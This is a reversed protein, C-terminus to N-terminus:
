WRMQGADPVRSEWALELSTALIRDAVFRAQEPELGAVEICLPQFFRPMSEFVSLRETMQRLNDKFVQRAMERQSLVEIETSDQESLGAKNRASLAAPHTLVAAALALIGLAAARM